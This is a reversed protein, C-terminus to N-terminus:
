KNVSPINLEFTSGEGFVSAIKITGGLKQIAEHVIYLGIGSGSNNAGARYFMRFIKDKDDERIGTGNDEVLIRAQTSTVDIQINIFSAEKINDQFKVANNILNNFIIRLKMVDSRFTGTQNINTSIKLNGYEPLYQITAQVETILEDFDIETIVPIGRANKYYDIINIIFTDLKKVSKRILECIESSRM